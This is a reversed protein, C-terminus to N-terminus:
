TLRISLGKGGFEQCVFVPQDLSLSLEPNFKYGIQNFGNFEEAKTIKNKIVWGAFSGRAIKAHVAMFKPQNSKTDLTLFKPTIVQQETTLYNSVSKFYEDSSLNLILKHGSIQKAIEGGWFKYLSPIRFGKLKSSKRLFHSEEPKSEPSSFTTKDSLPSATAENFSSFNTKVPRTSVSSQLKQPLDLKYAMEMRYPNILDLPRLIGYLGSLIRLHEQAFKIDLSSLSPAQLGSYIDGIFSSIAPTEGKSKWGTYINQVDLALNNSVKMIESIQAQNLCKIFDALESAQAIFCPETYDDLYNNNCADARMTKSSHILIIM